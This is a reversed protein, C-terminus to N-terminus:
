INPLHRCPTSYTMICIICHLCVITIWIIIFIECIIFGGMEYLLYIISCMRLIYLFSFMWSSESNDTFMLFEDACYFFHTVRCIKLTVKLSFMLTAIKRHLQTENRINVSHIASNNQSHKQNNIIFNMLFFVYECSIVLIESKKFLSVCSNRPKVGAM